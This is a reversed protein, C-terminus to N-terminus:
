SSWGESAYELVTRVYQLYIKRQDEMSSGWDKGAMCKMINIRKKGKCVITEIHKTFRLQQDEEVGLFRYDQVPDISHGNGELKPKWACDATGSSIVMLKTKETNVEMKWRSFQTLRM